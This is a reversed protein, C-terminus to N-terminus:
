HQSELYTNALRYLQVAYFAFMIGTIILYFDTFQQWTLPNEPPLYGLNGIAVIPIFFLIVFPMVLWKSPQVTRKMPIDLVM